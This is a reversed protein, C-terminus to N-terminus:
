KIRILKLTLFEAKFNTLKGKDVVSQWSIKEDVKQLIRYSLKSNEDSVFYLSQTQEDFKWEWNELSRLHSCWNMSIDSFSIKNRKYFNLVEVDKKQNFSSIIHGRSLKKDDCEYKLMKRLYITDSKYFNQNSNDALWETNILEEKSVNQANLNFSLLLILLIFKTKM